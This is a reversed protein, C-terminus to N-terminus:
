IATSGTPPDPVSVTTAPTFDEGPNVYQDNEIEFQATYLEWYRGGAALLEEHVGREVIRGQDIVLIQDASRITSLRHAIVFSTRGRRLKRLGDQILAETESDLSSTAEDLILIRPDALIARAIAVRQRQGGSLKIGREGVITDYKLEFREAFEDCHAIRAVALIQDMTAGPRAYGINEAITGDFLFNDQLVVGLQARYDRLRIATLDQEDVLVRGAQPRHFAMLLGILTSKGSGSPGVLATTSGAPAHFSIDRLVLEDPKYAFNVSEVRIDGRVRPLPMREQDGADETELKSLERMRDLGAFAEAVQTSISAIQVLPAAMMGTFSIYMVFDGLTMRGDLIARGGMFMLLVGMVGVIATSVATTASVGTMTKAINRFLRDVGEAFAQQERPEAVYAKVVRIGGLAQSLRGNVEAYLEWRQRFLPRITNFAYAMGGGFISLVVVTVLTLQWNLYFLVALALVATVTGGTLQVFGTGVLNRIGEPDQMIRSLLVGTQTADFFRLPLRTVHAHVRVRMDAIARQAAVSLVQSNAFSTVAQILTAIAVGGALPMLLDARGQGLVDDVLFKSSAPLALGAIRSILTLGLGIWLRRRHM